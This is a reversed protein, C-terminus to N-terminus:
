HRTAYSVGGVNEELLTYVSLYSSFISYIGGTIGYRTREQNKTAGAISVNSPVYICEGQDNMPLHLANEAWISEQIDLGGGLLGGTALIFSRGKVTTARNHNHVTISEVKENEFNAGSVTTNSYYRIGLKISDKRLAEFLRYATANPPMGPAETVKARLERELDTLVEEWHRLGLSAPFIFLDVNESVLQRKINQIFRERIEKQDLLRAVDLQTLVRQTDKKISISITEIELQHNHDQLNGKMFEPRFDLLESIGVIVVKGKKPLASITKPYLRTQKVYGSGTVMSIPTGLNGYYPYAIDNTLSLFEQTAKDLISEGEQDIQFFKKWDELNGNSGPLLDMVGTSQAIRGVGESVLAVSLNKKKAYIASLVGTLGQGIVVVDYM